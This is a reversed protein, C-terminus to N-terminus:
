MQCLLVGKIAKEDPADSPTPPFAPTRCGYFQSDGDSENEKLAKEGHFERWENKKTSLFDINPM